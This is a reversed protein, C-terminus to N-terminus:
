TMSALRMVGTPRRAGRWKQRGPVQRRSEPEALGTVEVPARDTLYAADTEQRHPFCIEPTSDRPRRIARETEGATSGVFNHAPPQALARLFSPSIVPVPRREHCSTGSHMSSESSSV